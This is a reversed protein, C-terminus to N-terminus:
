GGTGGVRVAGRGRLRRADGAAGGSCQRGNGAVGGSREKQWLISAWMGGGGPRWWQRSAPPPRQSRAHVRRGLYTARERMEEEGGEDRAESQWRSRGKSRPSKM